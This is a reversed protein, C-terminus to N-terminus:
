GKIIFKVKEFFHFFSSSLKIIFKIKCCNRTGQSYLTVNKHLVLVELIYDFM